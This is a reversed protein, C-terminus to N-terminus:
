KLLQINDELNKILADLYRKLQEKQQEDTIAHLYRITKEKELEEIKLELDQIKESLSKNKEILENCLLESEIHKKILMHAREELETILRLSHNKEM